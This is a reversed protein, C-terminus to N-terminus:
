PVPPNCTNNPRSVVLRSVAILMALVVGWLLHSFFPEVLRIETNLARSVRELVRVTPVSALAAFVLTAALRARSRTAEWALYGVFPAVYAYYHEWFIPSFVLLWCVLALSAAFLSSSQEAIRARRRWILGLLGLLTGWKAIRFATEWAPPMADERWLDLSRLVVAYLSQNFSVLGTRGLRPAIDEIFTRWSEIGPWFLSIGLMAAALATATLMARWNRRVAIVPLLVLTAYKIVAGLALAMGARASERRTLALVTAGILWGIIPSMNGVRIWRHAQPSLMVLLVVVGSLRHAQGFCLRVMAGAQAAIGITALTLLGLWLPHALGVPLPGMWSLLVAVPPPQIFRYSEGVGREDALQRWREKADSQDVMGPNSLAEPKPHPYLSDAAGHWLVVAAMYYQPFDQLQDLADRAYYAYKGSQTLLLFLM